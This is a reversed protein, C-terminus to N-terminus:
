CLSRTTLAELDGNGFLTCCGDHRGDDLEFIRSRASSRCSSPSLSALCCPPRSISPTQLAKAAGTHVSPSFRAACRDALSLSSIFRAFSRTGEDRMLNASGISTKLEKASQRGGTTPDNWGAMMHVPERMPTARLQTSLGLPATPSPTFTLAAAVFLQALMPRHQFSFTHRDGVLHRARM